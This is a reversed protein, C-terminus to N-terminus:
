GIRPSSLSFSLLSLLYHKVNSVVFSSAAECTEWENFFFLIKM